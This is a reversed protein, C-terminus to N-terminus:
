ELALMQDLSEPSRVVVPKKDVFAIEAALPRSNYRSAMVAGYAGASCIAFYEGEKAQQIKRGSAFCDASECVPGVLDALIEERDKHIELPVLEHHAEYLAPRILDNMGADLIVFNKGANRKVYEVRAVIVGANAVLYRGPESIIEIDLNYGALIVSIEDNLEKLPFESESGDYSVGMGGGINICTIELGNESNMRHAFAAIKRLGESYAATTFLQSGLHMGLGLIKVHKMERIAIIAETAENMGLGFKHEALGTAIYPHTEANVDPNIRLVISAQRKMDGAIENIRSCEDLSEANIFRIGSELADQIDAWSKGVGTMTITAPDVGAKIARYLEGRSNVDMGCGAKSLLRLLHTNSNAKVAYCTSHRFSTFAASYGKYKEIIADYDYLYFPTDHHSVLSHLPTEGCHLLGDKYLLSETFPLTTKDTTTMTSDCDNQNKFNYV